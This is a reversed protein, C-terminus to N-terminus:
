IVSFIANDGCLSFHRKQSSFSKAGILNLRQIARTANTVRVSYTRTSIHHSMRDCRATASANWNRTQRNRTRVFYVRGNRKDSARKKRAHVWCQKWKEAFPWGHTKLRRDQCVLLFGNSLSNLLFAFFSRGDLLFQILFPLSQLIESPLNQFSILHTLAM